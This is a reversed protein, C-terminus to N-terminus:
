DSTSTTTKLTDLYVTITLCRITTETNARKDYKLQQNKIKIKRSHFLSILRCLFWIVNLLTAKMTISRNHMTPQYVYKTKKKIKYKLFSVTKTEM